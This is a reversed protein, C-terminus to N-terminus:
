EVNDFWNKDLPAGPKVELKNMSNMEEETVFIDYNIKFYEDNKILNNSMCSISNFTSILSVTRTNNKFRVVEPTLVFLLKHHHIEDGFLHVGAEDKGKGISKLIRNKIEFSSSKILVTKTHVILDFNIQYFYQTIHKKLANISHKSLLRYADINTYIYYEKTPEKNDDEILFVTYPSYESIEFIDIYERGEM